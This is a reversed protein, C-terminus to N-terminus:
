ALAALAASTMARIAAPLARRVDPAFRASHNGAVTEGAAVAAAWQEPGVTGVMWYAAKIHAQGHLFAGAAGLLPFDETATAAAWPLVRHAGFARRHAEAVTEAPGADSVTAPSRSEIVIQPDQPCGAVRSRDLVIHNVAALAHDLARESFGRVTIGLDAHDPVVNSRTGAHVTGIGLVTREESDPLAHLDVIIRAAVLIPDVTLEPAGAHGGRGFVRITLSVSGALMAGAAVSPTRAQADASVVARVPALELDPGVPQERSTGEDGAVETGSIRQVAHAVTGAPFPASHQALVVDPVPWRTYLGDAIMAAAGALTEEAPQGVVILTGAWEDRRSRLESAAGSLAALHLDHGCAHMVDTISGDPLSGTAESAYQLGTDETVPLADLEARVLVVPGHGNELIGVVGHGGVDTTVEYGNTRLRDAFKAATSQEQGSLEPHRHLDLYFALTEVLPDAGVPTAPPTGSKATTM